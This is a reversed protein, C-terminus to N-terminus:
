PYRAPAVTPKGEAAALDFLAAETQERLTEQRTRLAQNEHQAAALAAATWSSEFEAMLARTGMWATAFSLLALLVLFRWHQLLGSEWVIGGFWRGSRRLARSTAPLAPGSLWAALAKTSLRRRNHPIGPAREAARADLNVPAFRPLLPLCQPTRFIM